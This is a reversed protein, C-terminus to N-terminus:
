REENESLVKKKKLNWHKARKDKLFSCSSSSSNPDNLTYLRALFFRKGSGCPVDCIDRQSSRFRVIDEDVFGIM